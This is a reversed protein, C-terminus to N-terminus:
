GNQAKAYKNYPLDATTIMCVSHWLWLIYITSMIALIQLM